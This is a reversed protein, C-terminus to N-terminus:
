VGKVRIGRQRLLAAARERRDGQLEIVGDRVTGGTGCAKKLDRALADLYAANKPLGDIVTVEKGGRGGKELRLKAIVADPVAEDRREGCRCLELPWGCKPCLTGKETSYVPRGRSM